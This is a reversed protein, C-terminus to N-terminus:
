YMTHVHRTAIPKSLELTLMLARVTFRCDESTDYPIEALGAQRWTSRTHASATDIVLESESVLLHILRFESPSNHRKSLTERLKDRLSRKSDEDTAVSDLQGVASGGDGDTTDVEVEVDQILIGENVDANSLSSASSESAQNTPPAFPIAIPSSPNLNLRSSNRSGFRINSLSRSSKIASPVILRSPSPRLTPTASRSTTRSRPPALSM